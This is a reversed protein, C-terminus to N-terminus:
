ATEDDEEDAYAKSKAKASCARVAGLFADVFGDEDGEKVAAFAERAYDREVGGSEEPEDGSAEMEDDDDDAKGKSAGGPLLLLGKM